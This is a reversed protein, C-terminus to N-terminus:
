AYLGIKKRAEIADEINAYHGLYIQKNEIVVKAFWSKKQKSWYVGKYGTSSNKQTPRNHLNQSETVTRLNIRRNDLTDHNIHDTDYGDPTKNVSRHMLVIKGQIDGKSPLRRAVYKNSTCHWKWQSLYEFDEDDVLAQQGRTLNIYKM